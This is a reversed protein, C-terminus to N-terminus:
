EDLIVHVYDEKMSAWGGIFHHRHIWLKGNTREDLLLEHAYRIKVNIVASKITYIGIM